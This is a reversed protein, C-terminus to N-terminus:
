RARRARRPGRPEARCRCRRPSYPCSSTCPTPRSIRENISISERLSNAAAPRVRHQAGPPLHARTGARARRGAVESVRPRALAIAVGALTSHVAWALFAPWVVIALLRLRAGAAQPSLANLVRRRARRRHHAAAPDLKRSIYSAINKAIFEIEVLHEVFALRTTDPPGRASGRTPPSPCWREEPM